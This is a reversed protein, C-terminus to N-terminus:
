ELTKISVKKNLFASFAIGLDHRLAEIDSCNISVFWDQPEPLDDDGPYMYRNLQIEFCYTDTLCILLPCFDMKELRYVRFVSSNTLVTLYMSFEREARNDYPMSECLARIDEQIYFRVARQCKYPYKENFIEDTDITPLSQYIKEYEKM